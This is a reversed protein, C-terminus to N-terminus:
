AALAANVRQGIDINVIADASAALAQEAFRRPYLGPHHVEGRRYIVEGASEFRLVGGARKPRIIYPDTGDNLWLAYPAERGFGVYGRYVTFEAVSKPEYFVSRSLNGTIRRIPNGALYITKLATQIRIMGALIGQKIAKDVRGWRAEADAIIEPPMTWTAGATM